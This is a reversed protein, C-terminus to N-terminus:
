REWLKAILNREEKGTANAYIVTTEISSHGMWKQVMNLQIGKDLCVIAFGHRLGKPCAQVGELQAIDMIAKIVLYGNKRSWKQRIPSNTNKNKKDVRGWIYGARIKSNKKQLKKLDYSNDLAKLYDSPLPVQRYVDEKRQKLTNFTVAGNAYDIDKIQLNLAESLRCGTYYLMLGFMRWDKSVEETAQYYQEREAPSLYKRNGNSDFLTIRPM